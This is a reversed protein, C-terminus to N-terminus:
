PSVMVECGIKQLGEVASEFSVLDILRVIGKPLDGTRHLESVVWVIPITPIDMGNKHISVRLCSAIRGMEDAAELNLEGSRSGFFRLLGAVPSLLRSVTALVNDSTTSIISSSAVM